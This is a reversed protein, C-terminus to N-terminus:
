TKAHAQLIGLAGGWLLLVGPVTWGLWLADAAVAALLPAAAALATTGQLARRRAGRPGLNAPAPMLLLERAGPAVPLTSLSM